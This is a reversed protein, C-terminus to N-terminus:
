KAIFNLAGENRRGAHLRGEAQLHHQLDPQPLQGPLLRVERREEARQYFRNRDPIV